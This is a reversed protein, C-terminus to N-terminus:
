VAHVDHVIIDDGKVHVLMLVVMLTVDVEAVCLKLFKLHLVEVDSEDVDDVGVAASLSEHDKSLAQLSRLGQLHFAGM